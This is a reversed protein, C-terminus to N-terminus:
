VTKVASKKDGKQRWSVMIYTYYYALMIITYFILCVLKFIYKKYRIALIHIISFSEQGFIQPDFLRPNLDWRESWSM